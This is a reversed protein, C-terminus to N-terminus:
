ATVLSVHTIQPEDAVIEPKDTEANQHHPKGAEPLGKEDRQEIRIQHRM